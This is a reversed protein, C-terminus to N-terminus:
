AHDGAKFLMVGTPGEAKYAPTIKGAQVWRTLTARSVGLEAAKEKATLLNSMFSDNCATPHPALVLLLGGAM